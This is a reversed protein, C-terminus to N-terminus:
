QRTDSKFYGWITSREFESTDDFKKLRDDPKKWRLGNDIYGTLRRYPVAVMFSLAAVLFLHSIGHYVILRQSLVSFPRSIVYAWVIGAGYFSTGM